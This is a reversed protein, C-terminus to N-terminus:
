DAESVFKLWDEIPAVRNSAKSLALERIRKIHRYRVKGAKLAALLASRKVGTVAVVPALDLRKVGKLGRMPVPDVRLHHLNNWLFESLVKGDCSHVWM